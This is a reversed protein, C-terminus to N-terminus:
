GCTETVNVVNLFYLMNACSEENSKAAITGM